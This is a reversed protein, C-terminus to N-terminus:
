DRHMPTLPKLRFKSPDIFTKTSSETNRSTIQATSHQLWKNYTLMLGTERQTLKKPPLEVGPSSRGTQVAESIM